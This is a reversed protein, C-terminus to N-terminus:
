VIKPLFVHKFQTLRFPTAGTCPRVAVDRRCARRARAAGCAAGRGGEATGRDVRRGAGERHLREMGLHVCVSSAGALARSRRAAMRGGQGARYPPKGATRTGQGRQREGNEGPGRRPARRYPAGAGGATRPATAATSGAARRRASGATAALEPSPRSCGLGLTDGVERADVM